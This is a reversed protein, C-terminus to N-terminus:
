QPEKVTSPGARRIAQGAPRRCGPALATIWWSAPRGLYYAPANRHARPAGTTTARM